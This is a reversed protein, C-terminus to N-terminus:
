DALYNSDFIEIIQNDDDILRHAIGTSLYENLGSTFALYNYFTKKKIWKGNSDSKELYIKYEKEIEKDFSKDITQDLKNQEIDQLIEESKIKIRNFLLNLNRDKSNLIAKLFIKSDVSRSHSINKNSKIISRKVAELLIEKSDSSFPIEIPKKSFSSHNVEREFIDKFIKGIDIYQNLIKYASSEQNKILGFFLDSPSVETQKFIRAEQQAHMIIDKTNESFREIM